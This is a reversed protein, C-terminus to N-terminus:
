DDHVCRDGDCELGDKCENDEKCQENLSKTKYSKCCRKGSPCSGEKACFMSRPCYNRESDDEDTDDSDDEDSEREDCEIYFVLFHPLIAM